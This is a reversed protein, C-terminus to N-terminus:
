RGKLVDEDIALDFASFAPQVDLCRLRQDIRQM